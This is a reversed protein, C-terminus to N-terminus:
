VGNQNRRVGMFALGSGVALLLLGSVGLLIRIWSKGTDITVKEPEGLLIDENLAETGPVAESATEATEDLIEVATLSVDIVKGNQVLQM